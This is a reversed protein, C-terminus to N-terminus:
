MVLAEMVRKIDAAKLELYKNVLDVGHDDVKEVFQHCRGCVWVGKNPDNPDWHHYMSCEGVECLECKGETPRDRKYPTSLTVMKGNLTSSVREGPKYVTGAVVNEQLMLYKEALESDADIAEAFANCHFCVWLGMSANSNNWHHWGLSGASGCLECTDPKQRKLPAPLYTVSKEGKSTGIKPHSQRYSKTREYREKPHNREWMRYYQRNRVVRRQKPDIIDWWPMEGEHILYKEDLNEINDTNKHFMQINKSYQKLDGMIDM